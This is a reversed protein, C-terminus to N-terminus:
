RSPTASPAPSPAAGGPRAVAPTTRPPLKVVALRSGAAAGTVEAADAAPVLLSVALTDTSARSEAVEHVLAARVVLVPDGGAEERRPVVYVDVVDGPRVGGAPRQEAALVAGVLVAGNPIQEGAAFMERTALTGPYIRTTAYSGILNGRAEARIAGAGTGAIRATGLDGSEIREGPEVLQRVVVYDERQGSRLTVLASTLAGGAILLVALGALAPRRDRVPAPLRSPANPRAATSASM